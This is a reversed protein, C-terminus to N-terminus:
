FFQLCVVLYSLFYLLLGGKASRPGDSEELMWRVAPMGAAQAAALGIVWFGLPWLPVLDEIYLDPALWYLSLFAIGLLGTFAVLFGKAGGPTPTTPPGSPCGLSEALMAALNKVGRRDLQGPILRQEKEGIRAILSTAVHGVLDMSEM